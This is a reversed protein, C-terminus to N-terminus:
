VTKSAAGHNAAGEGLWVCSYAAIVKADRTAAYKQLKEFEVGFNV